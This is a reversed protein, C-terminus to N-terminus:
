RLILTIGGGLIDWARDNAPLDYELFLYFRDDFNVGINLPIWARLEFDSIDADIDLGTSLNLWYEPTHTFSLTLDLGYEEWKHVGGYFSYYSRRTERFLYQVDAAFLDSGNYYGYKVGFDVDYKYGYGAMILYSMGRLEPHYINREASNYIPSLTLSFAKVPLTKAFNIVQASLAVNLLMSFVAAFLIKKM